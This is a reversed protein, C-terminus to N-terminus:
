AILQVTRDDLFMVPVMAALTVFGIIRPLGSCICADAQVAHPLGQTAWCRIGASGSLQQLGGLLTCALLRRIPPSTTWLLSPKYSARAQLFQNNSRTLQTSVSARPRRVHNHQVGRRM